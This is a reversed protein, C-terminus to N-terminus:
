RTTGGGLLIGVLSHQGVRYVWFDGGWFGIAFVAGGFWESVPGGVWDCVLGRELFREVNESSQEM